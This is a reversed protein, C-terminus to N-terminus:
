TALLGPATYYKGVSYKLDEVEYESESHTLRGFKDKTSFLIYRLSSPQNDLDQEEYEVVSYFGREWNYLLQEYLSLKNM